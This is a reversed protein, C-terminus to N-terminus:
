DRKERKVYLTSHYHPITKSPNNDMEQCEAASWYTEIDDLLKIDSEVPQYVCSVGALYNVDKRSDIVECAHNNFNM